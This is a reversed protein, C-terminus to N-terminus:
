KGEEVITAQSRILQALEIIALEIICKECKSNHITTYLQHSIIGEDIAKLLIIEAIYYTM